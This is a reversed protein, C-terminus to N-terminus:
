PELAECEAETLLCMPESEPIHRERILRAIDDSDLTGCGDQSGPVVVVQTASRLRRVSLCIAPLTGQAVRHAGAFRELAGRPFTQLGETGDARTFTASASDNTDAVLVHFCVVSSDPRGVTIVTRGQAEAAADCGRCREDQGALVLTPAMCLLVTAITPFLPSRM